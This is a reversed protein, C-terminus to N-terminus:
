FSIGISFGYNDGPELIQHGELYLHIEDEGTRIGVAWGMAEDDKDDPKGYQFRGYPEILGLRPLYVSADAFYFVRDNDAQASVGLGAYRAIVASIGGRACAMTGDGYDPWSWGAGIWIDTGIGGSVASRPVVLLGLLVIAISIHRTHQMGATYGRHGGRDM